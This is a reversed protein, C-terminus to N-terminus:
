RQDAVFIPAFLRWRGRALHGITRAGGRTELRWFRRLACSWLEENLSVVAVRGDAAVSLGLTRLTRAAGVVVRDQSARRAADLAGVLESHREIRRVM